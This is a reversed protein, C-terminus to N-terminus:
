WRRRDDEFLEWVDEEGPFSPPEGCPGTKLKCGNWFRGGITLLTELLWLERPLEELEMGVMM